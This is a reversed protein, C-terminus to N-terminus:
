EDREGKIWEKDKPLFWTKKYDKLKVYGSNHTFYWIGDIKSKELRVTPYWADERPIVIGDRLAKFVIEFSCKIEEEIDELKGLKQVINYDIETDFIITNANKSYYEDNFKKTLRNM